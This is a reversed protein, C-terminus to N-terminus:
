HDVDGPRRLRRGPVVDINGELGVPPNRHVGDHHRDRHPESLRSPTITSGPQTHSHHRVVILGVVVLVVAAAAALAPLRRRSHGPQPVPPTWAPGDAVTAARGAFTARVLQELEQDSKM